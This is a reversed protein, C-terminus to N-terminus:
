DTSEEAHKRTRAVVTAGVPDCWASCTSLSSGRVICVELSWVIRRSVTRAKTRPARTAESMRRAVGCRANAAVEESLKARAFPLRPASQVLMDTPPSAIELSATIPVWALAFEPSM